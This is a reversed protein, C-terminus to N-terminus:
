MKRMELVSQRSIEKLMLIRILGSFPRVILWYMRFLVKAMNGYTQIRTETSLITGGNEERQVGFNCIAKAFGNQNFDKVQDAPMTIIGGSPRWFRGVRALVMEENPIQDLLIFGAKKTLDELTIELGPSSDTPRARGYFGRLWFLTKILFSQRLDLRCTIQYVIEPPADIHVNHFESFQYHSMYDDIRM